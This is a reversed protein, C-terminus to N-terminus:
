KLLMTAHTHRLSHFDFNNFIEKRIIMSTHQMTRSTIYSGDERVCVFHVPFGSEYNKIRNISIASLPLIKANGNITWVSNM